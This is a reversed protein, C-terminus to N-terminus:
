GAAARLPAQTDLKLGNQQVFRKQWLETTAIGVLAASDSFGLSASRAAKQVLRAVAKPEFVADNRSQAQSFLSAMEPRASAGFFVDSEPARYPQKPRDNIVPPLIAKTATRLIHKERLGRLKMSPPLRTAFEVVRHDLFPFRGEVGYAMAMRDGQSSLIYGPLLYTTELYQAQSLPHWHVFEAPLGDRMEALADYGALAQKVETSFFTKTRGTTRFRPLHSFLPDNQDDREGGFFANLFAPNQGQMRPLYPYLRQLLLPRIRSGPQRGVFRRLKAEKFIDYGGFVEDAGEGTLVVKIGNQRVTEALMMLPAPSTRLIPREAHAIVQPLALGLDASSVARAVHHTGLAEAMIQQFGSEDFEPTEFTVSFSRLNTQGLSVALATTISSDLGGSLYSGVPVDARLRISTADSLLALLEEGLADESADTLADTARPFDLTWYASITTKDPTAILMHGPPLELVDRFMTRPALPAWTTFIQDLAFLDLEASVGPVELLPKVESAFAIGGGSRTYHLPRVGMRDRALILTQEAVDWLGIAFDGNLRTVFSPGMQRYLHIIVETDSTTRFVHGRAVLEDRLERYNFIEGNFTLWVTEGADSMPQQGTALDIISLRAHALGCRGKLTVGHGDPGRHAIAAVMRSLTALRDADNGPLDIFGAIGCM